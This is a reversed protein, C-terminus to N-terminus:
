INFLYLIISRLLGGASNVIRVLLVSIILLLSGSRGIDERWYSGLPLLVRSSCVRWSISYRTM